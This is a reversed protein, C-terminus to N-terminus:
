SLNVIEHKVKLYLTKLPGPNALSLLRLSLKLRILKHMMKIVNLKNSFRFVLAIITNKNLCLFLSYLRIKKLKGGMLYEKFSYVTCAWVKTIQVGKCHSYPQSSLKRMMERPFYSFKSCM